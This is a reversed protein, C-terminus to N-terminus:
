ECRKVAAGGTLSGGLEGVGWAEGGEGFWASVDPQKM